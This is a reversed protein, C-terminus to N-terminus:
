PLQACGTNGRVIGLRCLERDVGISDLSQEEHRVEDSNRKSEENAQIIKTIVKVEGYKKGKFFGHTWAGALLASAAGAMFLWRWRIIFQLVGIM